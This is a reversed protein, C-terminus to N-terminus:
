TITESLIRLSIYFLPLAVYGLLAEARLSGMVLEECAIPEGVIIGDLWSAIIVLVQMVMAAVALGLGLITAALSKVPKRKFWYYASLIMLFGISLMVLSIGLDGPIYDSYLFEGAGTTGLYWNIIAIFGAVSYVLGLVVEIPIIVYIYRKFIGKSNEM